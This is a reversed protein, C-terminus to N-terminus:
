QSGGDAFRKYRIYQITQGRLTIPYKTTILKHLNTIYDSLMKYALKELHKNLILTM